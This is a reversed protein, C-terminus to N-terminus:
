VKGKTQLSKQWISLASNYFTNRTTAVNEFLCPLLRMLATYPKPPIRRPARFTGMTVAMIKIYKFCKELTM